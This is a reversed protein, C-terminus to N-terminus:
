SSKRLTVKHQLLTEGRSFINLGSSKHSEVSSETCDSVSNSDTYEM